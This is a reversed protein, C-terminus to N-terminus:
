GGLVSLGLQQIAGLNNHVAYGTGFLVVSLFLLKLEEPVLRTKVLFTMGVVTVLSDLWLGPELGIGAFLWRSLPNAESVGELPNRLCIFTTWHDAASVLLVLLTLVIVM